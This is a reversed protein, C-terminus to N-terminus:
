ARRRRVPTARLGAPPAGAWWGAGARRGVTKKNVATGDRRSYLPVRERRLEKWTKRASCEDAAVREQRRYSTRTRGSAVTHSSVGVRDYATSAVRARLWWTRRLPMPPPAAGTPFNAAAAAPGVLASLPVTFRIGGMQPRATTTQAPWLCWATRGKRRPNDAPAKEAGGVVVVNPGPRRSPGDPVTAIATAVRCARTRAGSDPQAAL